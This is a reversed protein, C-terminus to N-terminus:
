DEEDDDYEEYEEDEEDDEEDSIDSILERLERERERRRERKLQLKKLEEGTPPAFHELSIPKLRLTYSDNTAYDKRTLYHCGTDANFKLHMSMPVLPTLKRKRLEMIIRKRDAENKDHISKEIKKREETSAFVNYLKNDLSEENLMEQESHPVNRPYALEHKKPTTPLFPNERYARYGCVLFTNKRFAEVEMNCILRIRHLTSSPFILTDLANHPAIDMYNLQTSSLCSTNCLRILMARAHIKGYSIGFVLLDHEIAYDTKLFHYEFNTIYLFVGSYFLIMNNIVNYYDMNRKCRENIIKNLKLFQINQRVCRAHVCGAIMYGLKYLFCDNRKNFTNFLFGNIRRFGQKNIYQEPNEHIDILGNLVGMTISESIGYVKLKDILKYITIDTDDTLSYIKRYNIINIASLYEKEKSPTMTYHQIIDNLEESSLFPVASSLSPRNMLRQEETSSSAACM